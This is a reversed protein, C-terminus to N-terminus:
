HIQHACDETHEWISVDYGYRSMQAALAQAEALNSRWASMPSAKTYIVQYKM